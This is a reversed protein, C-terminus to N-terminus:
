ISSEKKEKTYEIYNKKEINNSLKNFNNELENKIKKDNTSKAFLNNLLM